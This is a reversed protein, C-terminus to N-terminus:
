ADAPMEANAAVCPAEGHGEAVGGPAEVDHAAGPQQLIGDGGPAIRLIGRVLRAKQREETLLRAEEERPEDLMRAGATKDGAGGGRGLIDVAVGGAVPAGDIHTGRVILLENVGREGIVEGKGAGEGGLIGENGAGLGREGIEGERGNAGVTGELFPRLGQGLSLGVMAVEGVKVTENGAAADRKIGLRGEAGGGLLGKPLAERVVVMDDAPGDTEDAADMRAEALAIRRHLGKVVGGLVEAGVEEGVGGAARLDAVHVAGGGGEAFKEQAGLAGGDMNQGGQGFAEGGGSGEAAEAGFGTEKDIGRPLIAAQGREGHGGQTVAGEIEAEGVAGARDGERATLPLLDWGELNSWGGEM